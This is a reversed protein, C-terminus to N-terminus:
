LLAQALHLVREPMITWAEQPTLDDLNKRSRRWWQEVGDDTYSGALCWNIFDKAENLNAFQYLEATIAIEPAAKGSIEAQKPIFEM